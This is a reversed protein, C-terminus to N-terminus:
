SCVPPSWPFSLGRVLCINENVTASACLCSILRQVLSNKTPSVLHCESLLKNTNLVEMSARSLLRKSRSIKSEGRPDMCGYIHRLTGDTPRPQLTHLCWLM